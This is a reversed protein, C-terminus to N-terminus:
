RPRQRSRWWGFALVIGILVVGFIIHTQGEQAQLAGLPSQISSGSSFRIWGSIVEGIGLLAFLIALSRSIQQAIAHKQEVVKQKDKTEANPLMLGTTFEYGCDCKSATEENWIKCSPCQKSAM